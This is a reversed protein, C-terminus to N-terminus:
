HLIYFFILIFKKNLLSTNIINGIAMKNESMYEFKLMLYEQLIEDSSSHELDENSISELVKVDIYENYNSLFEKRSIIPSMDELPNGFQLKPIIKQDTKLQIEFFHPQNNNLNKNINFVM